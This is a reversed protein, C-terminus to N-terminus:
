NYLFNYRNRSFWYYPLDDKDVVHDGNAECEFGTTNTSHSFNCVPNIHLDIPQNQLDNTNNIKLTAADIFPIIKGFRLYVDFDGVASPLELATPGQM